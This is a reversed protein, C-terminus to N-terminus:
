SITHGRACGGGVAEAAPVEAVETPPLLLRAAENLSPFAGEEAEEEDDEQHLLLPLLPLPLAVAPPGGGTPTFARYAWSAGPPEEDVVVVEAAAAAAAADKPRSSVSVM